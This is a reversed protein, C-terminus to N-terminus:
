YTTYAFRTAGIASPNINLKRIVEIMLAINWIILSIGTGFAAGIIGYNPILISNLLINMLTAIGVWIVVRQGYGTMMLILGVAGAAANLIQSVSLIVLPVYAYIYIDGIFQIIERGFIIYIVTILISIVLMLRSLITVMEQLEKNNTEKYLRAIRPSMSITIAGMIFAIVSAGRNAIAYIGTENDGLIAGVMIVDVHSSIIFVGEALLLPLTQASWHYMDYKYENIVPIKKKACSVVLRM